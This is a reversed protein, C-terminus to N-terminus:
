SSGDNDSGKDKPPPPTVPRRPSLTDTVNSVGTRNGERLPTTSGTQKSSDAPKQPKTEKAM